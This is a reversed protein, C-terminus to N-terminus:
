LIKWYNIIFQMKEVKQSFYIVSGIILIVFLFTITLFLKKSKINSM